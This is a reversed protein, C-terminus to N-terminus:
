SKKGFTQNYHIGNQIADWVMAQFHISPIACMNHSNCYKNVTIKAWIPVKSYFLQEYLSIYDPSENGLITLLETLTGDIIKQQNPTGISDFAQIIIGSIKKETSIIKNKDIGKLENNVVSQELTNVIKRVDPILSQVVLKIDDENFKVNESTLMKKCFDIVFNEPLTKFEFCQFRSILPDIIKHIYNCTCLFRGNQHFQEIIARLASQANISLYDIEDIFVIKHKAEYPPSKLFGTIENRVTDVGTSASGNLILVDMENKTLNNKIIRASSSKGSGAPGSMLINPIEKKELCRRFFNKQDEELVLDDLNKPRYKEVWLYNNLEM